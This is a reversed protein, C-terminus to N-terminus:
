GGIGYQKVKRYLSRLGIGLIQATRAKDFGTMKLTEEIARKEIEEMTMGVQLHLDRSARVQARLHNPLDGVDLPEGDRGFVVLGEILNRLERVNGPWDYQILLEMAGRTIGKVKRKNELNFEGLFEDVLLPIDSKRERLAPLKITAVNLRYYLDQRFTGAKVAEELDRNTACILRVDVKQPQNGGVREIEREQIVRLLKVQLTASVESIEDLFLTGGDAIEFRGRRAAVAGTFAGREHGFLESEVVGEALASCNLAVLPENRRPSLHHVAKAVLEKGTGTEGCILITTRAGALQRIRDYIAVMQSSMGTLYEINYRHDLRAQLDSVASVLRQHSIARELVAKLRDFNIPRTQVDHAGSRMAETAVALEADPVIVVVAAEPNRARAIELLRLGDIRQAKLDTILVDIPEGDLVNYAAEGDRVSVTQCGLQAELFAAMERSREDDKDVVLARPPEMATM